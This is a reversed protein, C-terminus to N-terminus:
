EALLRKVKDEDLDPQAAIAQERDVKLRSALANAAQEAALPDQLEPAVEAVVSDDSTTKAKKTSGSAEETPGNRKVSINELYPDLIKMM